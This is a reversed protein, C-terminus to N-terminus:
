QVTFDTHMGRGYHDPRNCMLVYHGAPLNLTLDKSQGPELDEVEGMTTIKDEDVDGDANLPLKDSALDTQVVVFEHTESAANNTIHFTVDGAKASNTDLKMMYTDEPTGASVGVPKAGCAVLLPLVLLCFGLLVLKRTTKTAM